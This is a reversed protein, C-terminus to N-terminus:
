RARRRTPLETVGLPVARGRRRGRAGRGVGNDGPAVAPTPTRTRAHLLAQVAPPTDDGVRVRDPLRSEQLRVGVQERLRGADRRPDLGLVSVGGGDPVRLGAVCVVTTTRGVGSPGLIDFVEGARVTLSVDRVAAQDRYREHLNTVEIVPM